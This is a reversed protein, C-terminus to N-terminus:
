LRSAKWIPKRKHTFAELGERHNDGGLVAESFEENTIFAAAEVNGTNWAQRLGARTAIISDPSNAAIASAIEVAESVLSQVTRSVGNILHFKAAEEASIRRGTLAIESGIQLGCNRVLRPLGGGGAYIGVKVEPLGFEATPSAIIIDCNLCFEFGGGLAFGNVAAIVPKKGKRKSLGAFGGPPFRALWPVNTDDKTKKMDILDEGACFARDGSGTIIAVQLNPANDFWEFVGHLEWHEPIGLANMRHERNITILVIGAAPYSLSCSSTAPAAATEM